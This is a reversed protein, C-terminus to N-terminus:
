RCFFHFSFKNESNDNSQMIKSSLNHGKRLENRRVIEKWEYDVIITSHSERLRSSVTDGIQGICKGVIIM